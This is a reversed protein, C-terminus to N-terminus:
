FGLLGFRRAAPLIVWRSMAHWQRPPASASCACSRSRSCGTWQSTSRMLPSSPSSACAHSAALPPWTRRPTSSVGIRLPPLLPAFPLPSSPWCRSPEWVPPCFCAYSCAAYACLEGGGAGRLLNHAGGTHLHGRALVPQAVDKRPGARVGRRRLQRPQAVRDLAGGRLVGSRAPRLEQPAPPVALPPRARQGHPLPRRQHEACPLPLPPFSLSSLPPLAYSFFIHMLLEDCSGGLSMHRMIFNCERKVGQELGVVRGERNYVIGERNWGWLEGREGNVQMTLATLSPPLCHLGIRAVPDDANVALTLSRLASLGALPALSSPHPALLLGQWELHVLNRLGRSLLASGVADLACSVHSSASGDENSTNSPIEERVTLHTLRRKLSSGCRLLATLLHKPGLPSPPAPTAATAAATTPLPTSWPTAFPNLGAASATANLAELLPLPPLHLPHSLYTHSVGPTSSSSSFSSPNGEATDGLLAHFGMTAMIEEAEEGTLETSDEEPMTPGHQSVAAPEISSSAMAPAGSGGAGSVGALTATLSQSSGAESVGSLAATLTQFAAAGMLPSVFPVPAAVAEALLAAAGTVPTVWPAPAAAEEEGNSLEEDLEADYDSHESATDSESDSNSTHCM